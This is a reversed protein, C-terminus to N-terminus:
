RATAMVYVYTLFLALGILILLINSEMSQSRIRKLYISSHMSLYATGRVAGDIIWKEFISVSVEALWVVPKVITWEYFEDVMFKNFSAKWLLHIKFKITESLKKEEMVIFVFYALSMSLLILVITVIMLMHETHADYIPALPPAVAKELFAQFMRPNDHSLFHPLGLYGVTVSFFALITLPLWMVWPVEHIPHDGDHHTKDQAFFVLLVLRTMYFATLLATFLAIYYLPKGFTPRNYVLWLIEDKSFFGSLGPIGAIALLAIVFCWFTIPLRGRLNGMKFMDQEHHLAYIVAGAGLFLLAKFFAHTFVHFIGSSFAGAGCALVMYGLQSVTSYALVKKIDRQTLAILAAWLATIAGVWAIVDLVLQLHIVVHSLRALLFVGATVMTAAHILASVPTPGAMADPLWVYLPMQASKGTVGLVLMLSSFILMEKNALIIDLMPAKISLFSISKFVMAYGIIGLVVGFDGIRNVVFAKRGAIAKEIDKYWFGILLYSCLGVGEWGFFLVLFNESLVLLLMSFVFLSIYSFFKGPREDHGMYGIAFLTILSAVGTVMLTMIGSLQDMMFSVNLELTGITAWNWLKIQLVQDAAVDVFLYCAVFFSLLTGFLSISGAIPANAKTRLFVGNIIFALLPLSPILPLYNSLM